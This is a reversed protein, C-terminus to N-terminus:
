PPDAPQDAPLVVHRERPEVHVGLADVDPDGRREGRAVTPDGGHLVERALIPHVDDADIGHKVNILDRGVERVAVTENGRGKEFAAVPPDLLAVGHDDARVALDQGAGDALALFREDGVEVDARDAGRAAVEVRDAVVVSWVDEAEVDVGGGPGGHDGLAERRAFLLSSWGRSASPEAAGSASVPYRM